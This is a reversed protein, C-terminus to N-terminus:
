FNYFNTTTRQNQTATYLCTWECTLAHTIIRSLKILVHDGSQKSTPNAPGKEGCLYGSHLFSFFIITFTIFILLTSFLIFTQRLIAFLTELLISYNTFRFVCRFVSFLLLLLYFCIFAVNINYIFKVTLFLDLQSYGKFCILPFM